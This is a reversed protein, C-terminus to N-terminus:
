DICERINGNGDYCHTRLDDGPKMAVWNSGVYREVGEKDTYTELENIAGQFTDIDESCQSCLTRKIEVQCRQCKITCEHKTRLLAAADADRKAILEGYIQQRYANVRIELDIREEPTM